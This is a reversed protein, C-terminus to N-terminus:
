ASLAHSGSRQLNPFYPPVAAARVQCGAAYGGMGVSMLTASTTPDNNLSSTPNILEQKLLLFPDVTYCHGIDPLLGLRVRDASIGTEACFSHWALRNVNHPLLASRCDWDFGLEQLTKCVIQGHAAFFTGMQASTGRYGFSFRPHCALSIPGIHLGADAPASRDAMLLLGCFADGMLTSGPVYRDALRLREHGDGAVVAVVRARGARLLTRALELAWILGACNTQDLDFKQQVQSLFSFERRLRPMVAGSVGDRMPLGRVHILTDPPPADANQAELDEMIRMFQDFRTELRSCGAVQGLGFLREFVRAESPTGGADRIIQEADIRGDPVHTALATLRM